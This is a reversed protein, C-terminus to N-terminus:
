LLARMHLTPKKAQCSINLLLNKCEIYDKSVCIIYFKILETDAYLHSSQMLNANFEM